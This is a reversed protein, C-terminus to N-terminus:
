EELYKLLVLVIVGIEHLVLEDVDIALLRLEHRRRQCEAGPDMAGHREQEAPHLLALRGVELLDLAVELTVPREFHLV